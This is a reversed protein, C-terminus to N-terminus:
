SGDTLPEPEEIRPQLHKVCDPCIGHTFKALDHEQMFLDLQKWYGMDDRIKKCWACIPLLETLRNVQGLARRLEENARRQEAAEERFRGLLWAFAAQVGFRMAFNWAGVAWDLARRDPVASAFQPLSVCLWAASCILAMAIGARKGLQITVLSLPLLYFFDFLFFWGTLQDGITVVALLFAALVATRSVSATAALLREARTKPPETGPVPPGTASDIGPADM